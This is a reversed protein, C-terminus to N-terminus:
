KGEGSEVLAQRRVSNMDLNAVFDILAQEMVSYSPQQSQETSFSLSISVPIASYRPTFVLERWFSLRGLDAWSPAPPNEICSQAFCQSAAVLSISQGASFRAVNFRASGDLTKFNHVTSSEILEGQGIFCSVADHPTLRNHDFSLTVLQGNHTYRGYEQFQGMSYPLVWRETQEWDGVVHPVLWKQQISNAPTPRLWQHSAGIAFASAVIGLFIIKTYM